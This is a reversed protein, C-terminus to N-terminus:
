AAFKEPFQQTIMLSLQNALDLTNNFPASIIPGNAIIQRAYEASASDKIWDQGARSSIQNVVSQYYQLLYTALNPYRNSWWTPNWSTILAALANLHDLAAAAPTNWDGKANAATVTNEIAKVFEAIHGVAAEASSKGYYPEFFPGFAATLETLQQKNYSLTPDNTGTGTIVNRLATNFENFQKKLQSFFQQSTPTMPWAVNMKAGHDVMKKIEQAMPHDFHEEVISHTVKKYM